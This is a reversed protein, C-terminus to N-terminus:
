IYVRETISGRETGRVLSAAVEGMEAGVAAAEVMVGVGEPSPAGLLGGLALGAGPGEAARGRSLVLFFFIDSSSIRSFSRLNKFFAVRHLVTLNFWICCSRSQYFLIHCRHISIILTNKVHYRM